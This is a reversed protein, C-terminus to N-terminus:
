IKALESEVEIPVLKRINVMAGKFYHRPEIGVMAISLQIATAIEEAEDEDVGFKRQAWDQLPFLPPWFPRAGTEMVAAHPADVAIRGGKALTSHEVSRALEGRDIPPHPSATNISQVVEGVGRAAASRLGKIIAGELKAPLAGIENAFQNLNLTKVAM